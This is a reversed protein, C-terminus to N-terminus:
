SVGERKRLKYKSKQGIQFFPAFGGLLCGFKRNESFYIMKGPCSIFLIPMRKNDSQTYLAFNM